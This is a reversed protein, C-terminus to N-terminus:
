WPFGDGQEPEALAEEHVFFKRYVMLFAAGCLMMGGFLGGQELASPAGSQLSSFVSRVFLGSLVTLGFALGVGIVLAFGPAHAVRRGPTLESGELWVSALGILGYLGFVLAFAILGIQGVSLEEPARGALRAIHQGDLFAILGLALGILLAFFPVATDNRYV